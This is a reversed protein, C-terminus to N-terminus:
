RKPVMLLDIQNKPDKFYSIWHGLNGPPEAAFRARYSAWFREGGQLTRGAQARALTHLLGPETQVRSLLEDALPGGLLWLVSRRLDEYPESTVILSSFTNLAGDIQLRLGDAQKMSADPLPFIRMLDPEDFIAYHHRNPVHGERDRLWLHNFHSGLLLANLYFSPHLSDELAPALVAVVGASNKIGELALTRSGSQLRPQSVHAFPTGAPISGFLNQVLAPVDIDQLNGALSLVANAPVFRRKLQQDAESVTLKGLNKAAARRLIDEDKRGMAVERVQYYLAGMAPGYLMDNLESRAHNVADALGTKTVQVGRMRAAAQSLVGPFQEVSAVETFLTTRRSVPFSWGLSRQSDLEERNRAPIDGAPAMFALEGLAQGLGEMGPPDDDTGVSYGVTIAVAQADPIHRTFVRLGNDLTWTRVVTSDSLTQPPPVPAALAPAALIVGAALTLARLPRRNM